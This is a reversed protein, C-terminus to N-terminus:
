RRRQLMSSLGAAGGIISDIAHNVAEQGDLYRRDRRTAELGRLISCVPGIEADLLEDIHAHLDARRKEDDSPEGFSAKSPEVTRSSAGTLWADLDAKRFVREGVGGVRGAIALLGASVARNLSTRSRGVYDLARRTTYLEPQIEHGM